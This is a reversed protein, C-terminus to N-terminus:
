KVAALKSLDWLEHVGQHRSAVGLLRDMAKGFHEAQDFLDRSTDLAVKAAVQTQAITDSVTQLAGSVTTANLAAGSAGEAIESTAKTQADVASSVREATSAIQSITETTSGIESVSLGTAEQIVGIQQRIEDTAKSTQSALSKVEAAVVSFGRGAEGARAAEITANLALLNTRAAIDAILSVVSGITEVARSLSQVTTNTRGAFAVADNAMRSSDRTQAHIEVISSALEEAAAAITQVRSASEEAAMITTKAEEAARDSLESLNDSTRGLSSVAQVLTDRVGSVTQGFEKVANVLEDQQERSEEAKAAMHCAIANASDLTFLRAAADLLFVARNASWRHRSRVIGCLEKMITQALSYRQRLDFGIRAEAAARDKADAIWQEDFPRTYFREMYHAVQARFEQGSKDLLGHFYPTYLYLKEIHRDLIRPLEPKLLRWIESRAALTDADIEFADLRLQFTPDLPL